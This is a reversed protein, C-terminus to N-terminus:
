IFVGCRELNFLYFNQCTYFYPEIKRWKLGLSPSQNATQTPKTPAEKERKKEREKEKTTKQKKNKQPGVQKKTKKTKKKPKKTKNKNTTKKEKKEKKQPHDLPLPRLFKRLHNNPNYSVPLLTTIREEEEEEEGRLSSDGRVM